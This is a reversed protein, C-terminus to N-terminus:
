PNSNPHTRLRRATATWDDPAMERRERSLRAKEETLALKQDEPAQEIRRDLDQLKRSLTAVRVRAVADDFVRGAHALEEPDDLLEQLRQAAVPDM